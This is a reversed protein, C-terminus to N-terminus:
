QLHRIDLYFKENKLKSFHRVYQHNFTNRTVKSKLSSYKKVDIKPLGSYWKNRVAHYITQIYVVAPVGIYPLILNYDNEFGFLQIIDPKVLEVTRLYNKTNFRSTDLGVYKLIRNTLYNNEISPIRYIFVEEHQSKEIVKCNDRFAIHLEFGEARMLHSALVNIWSGTGNINESIPVHSFWLVRM